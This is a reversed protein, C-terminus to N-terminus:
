DVGFSGLTARAATTRQHFESSALIQDAIGVSNTSDVPIVTLLGKRWLTEVDLHVTQQRSQVQAVAHLFENIELLVDGHMIEFNDPNSIGLGEINVIEKMFWSTRLDSLEQPKFLKYLIVTGRNTPESFCLVNSGNQEYLVPSFKSFSYHGIAEKLSDSRREITASFLERVDAEDAFASPEAFVQLGTIRWRGIDYGRNTGSSCYFLLPSYQAQGEAKYGGFLFERGFAESKHTLVKLVFPIKRGNDTKIGNICYWDRGKHDTQVYAPFGDLSAPTSGSPAPTFQVARGRACEVAQAFDVYAENQLSVLPRQKAFTRSAKTVGPGRHAGMIGM